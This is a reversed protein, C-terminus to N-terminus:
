ENDMILDIMNVDEIIKKNEYDDVCTQHIFDGDIVLTLCGIPKKCHICIFDM